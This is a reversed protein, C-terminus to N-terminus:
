RLGLLIGRVTNAFKSVSCINLATPSSKRKRIPQFCHVRIKFFTSQNKFHVSETKSRICRYINRKNILQLLITCFISCICTYMVYVLM